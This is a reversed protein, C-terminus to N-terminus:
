QLPIGGPRFADQSTRRVTLVYVTGENVTFVARYSPRSGLGLLKDRIVYPFEGNEASLSHGEPFDSLLKLQQHITDFWREAQITDHHEAWWRAYGEIESEASPLIVGRFTM